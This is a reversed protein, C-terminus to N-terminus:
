LARVPQYIDAGNQLLCVVCQVDQNQVAVHLPTANKNGANQCNVDAKHAIWWMVTRVLSPPDSAADSRM